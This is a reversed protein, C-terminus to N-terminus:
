RHHQRINIDSNEAYKVAAEISNRVDLKPSWGLEILKPSPTIHVLSPDGENPPVIRPSQGTSHSLLNCVADYIEQTHIPVGSGISINRIKQSSNCCLLIAEVADEPTLYDRYTDSIIIDQKNLIRRTFAPIPGISLRPSVATGLVGVVYDGVYTTLYSEAMAKFLSYGSLNNAIPSSDMIPVSTDRTLFSQPYFIKPKGWQTCIKILNITTLVNSNFGAPGSDMSSACHVILNPKALKIITELKEYDTLDIKLFEINKNNQSKLSTKNAEVKDILILKESLNKKVWFDYFDLGLTGAGGTILVSM